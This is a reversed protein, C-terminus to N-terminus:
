RGGGLGFVLERAVERARKEAAARVKAKAEEVFREKRELSEKKAGCCSTRGLGTARGGKGCGCLKKPMLGFM